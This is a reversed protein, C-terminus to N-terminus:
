QRQPERPYVLDMSTNSSYMIVLPVNYQRSGEITLSLLKLTTSVEGVDLLPEAILKM